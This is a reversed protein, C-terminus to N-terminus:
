ANRFARRTSERATPRGRSVLDIRGRKGPDLFQLPRPALVRIIAVATDLSPTRDGSLLRSITSHSVGTRMALTRQSIGRQQMEDRLWGCFDGQLVRSPLSLDDVPMLDGRDAEFRCLDLGLRSQPGPAYRRWRAQCRVASRPRGPRLPPLTAALRQVRPGEVNTHKGANTSRARLVQAGPASITGLGVQPLSDGGGRTM